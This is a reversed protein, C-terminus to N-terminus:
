RLFPKSLFSTSIFRHWNESQLYLPQYGELQLIKNVDNRAKNGANKIDANQIFNEQLYYKM